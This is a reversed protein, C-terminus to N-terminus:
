PGCPVGLSCPNSSSHKRDHVTRDVEVDQLNSQALRLALASEWQANPCLFNCTKLRLRPGAM